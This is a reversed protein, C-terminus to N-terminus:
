SLQETFRLRGHERENCDRFEESTCWPIKTDVQWARVSLASLLFTVVTGLVCFTDSEKLTSFDFM